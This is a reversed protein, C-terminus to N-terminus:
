AVVPAADEQDWNRVHLVERSRFHGAFQLVLGLAAWGALVLVPLAIAADPFYSLDRLLTTAAGPVFWQGVVGWPQVLFQAPQAPSALPNGILLTVVSGVGIGPTGILSTMGLIFSATAFLALAIAGVNALYSGQLVGLWPQMVSVIVFGAAIAYLASAALRRWVGAVLLSIVIGGIMGGLTLPFAAATMGSGRSDTSAFPVVDTLKVTIEPVSAAAQLAQEASAGHAAAAQGATQAAAALQANVQAQLEGQVEAMLQTAVPSAASATLVEPTTGLVIGGDYSRDHIGSVIAGRGPVRTLDFVGKAKQDLAKQVASVQASSGTIAVPLNQATATTTPWLFALVIVGIAVAAGIGVLLARGWTTHAIRESM